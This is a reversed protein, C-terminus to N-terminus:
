TQSGRQNTCAAALKTALGPVLVWDLKKFRTTGERVTKGLESYRGRERTEGEKHERREAGEREGCKSIRQKERRKEEIRKESITKDEERKEDRIKLNDKELTKEIIRAEERM